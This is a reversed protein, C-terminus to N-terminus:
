ARGRMEARKMDELGLATSACSSLSLTMSAASSAEAGALYSAFKSQLSLDFVLILSNNREGGASAYEPQNGDEM